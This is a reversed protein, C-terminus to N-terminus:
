GRAAVLEKAIGQITEASVGTRQAVAAPNYASLEETSRGALRAVEHALGLAVFLQDAPHIPVRVDSNHGTLRMTSEFAVLKNMTGKDSPRRKESFARHYEVTSGWDDLFDADISVIYDAKDFRFRPMVRSGYSQAQGDLVDDMSLSDVMVHRFGNKEIAGKLTPSLVTGTLIWTSGKSSALAKSVQEDFAAWEVDAGDIRPNRLRDPDYLDHIMAQERPHISGGNIPHDANGDVKIPRGERTRLVFGHGTAPNASAYFNPQGPIIEEPNNVYPVIKQVPRRACGAMSAMLASAGMIKMFDRRDLGDSENGIRIPSSTFEGPVTKAYEKPNEAQELTMWFKESM